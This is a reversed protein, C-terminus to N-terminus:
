KQGGFRVRARLGYTRPSGLYRLDFGFSNFLPQILTYTVQNTVNSAFLSIDLPNGGVDHWDLNLDLQSVMSANDVPTSAILNARATTAVCSPITQCTAAPPLAALIAAANSTNTDSAATSFSSSYRYSATFQLKGAHEPIPLTVTGSVNGGFKPTLPLPDGLAAPNLRNNFNAIYPSIDINIEDVRSKIYTGAFDLRFWKSPRLSGDFDFGYSHAKGANFVSTASGGAPCVLLTCNLGVLLQADKLKSYFGAINFNGPVMGHFSTKAGVEFNDVTEPDFTTKAGIAAPAASGQRYGRSYTAYLMADDIPKYSANLTWTPRTSSTHLGASSPVLCNTAPDTSAFPKNGAQCAAAGVGLTPAVFASLPISLQTGPAGLYNPGVFNYQFSQNTANTIDNTIRIGATLKLQDTVAYTAQAYAAKSLYTITSISKNVTAGTNSLCRMEALGTYPGVLCLAGVSISENNTPKGPTSHEFYLGAQYQLKGDVANGQLQLEETFSRQDNGNQGEGNFAQATSVRSAISPSLSLINGGRSLPLFAPALVAAVYAQGSFNSGFVSQNLHQEFSAYSLINKVTLNDTAAWKTINIVQLQKTLARPNSLTQEVQYPDGSANLRDIQPQALPGFTTFPNARYLQPQSGIHDSNLYSIITYNEIDPTVDLVLSGRLATYDTDTFRRPGIGSINHIYGDRVQHDVGLRVRAWSTLPANVVAQIRRMGYNGASGEVYGEFHNTPKRPTLLVDGGTTNRGFLTGQPGKLVQVNQLDFLSGPGAGDGGPFAGAGGRPAVVESFFTGVTSTTRLAQSFGRISFVNTESSYRSEVNLGPVIKALDDAGVINSRNLQDQNVVTVSIPVDQLREEIRRATVIIEVDSASAAPTEAAQAQGGALFPMSATAFLMARLPIRIMLSYGRGLGYNQPHEKPM